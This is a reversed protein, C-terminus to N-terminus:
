WSHDALGIFEAPLHLMDGQAQWRVLAEVGIPVADELRVVPQFHVQLERRSEAGRLM